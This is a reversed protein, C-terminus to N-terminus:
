RSGGVPGAGVAPSPSSPPEGSDREVMYGRRLLRTYDASAEVSQVFAEIAATPRAGAAAAARAELEPWVTVLEIASQCVATCAGCHMCSHLLEVDKASLKAGRAGALGLGLKGRATTREDRSVLYAPCVPLCFGCNVCELAAKAVADKRARSPVVQAALMALRALAPAIWTRREFFRVLRRALRVHRAPSLRRTWRTRFDLSKGPNFLGKPDLRGKAALLEDLRRATFKRDAFPANYAGVQYLRAQHGDLGLRDLGFVLPLLALVAASGEAYLSAIVVSEGKGAANAEIALASGHRGALKEAAQAYAPAQADPVVLENGLFSQEARKGKLPYFREAWLYSGVHAPAETAGRGRVWNRLARWDDLSEVYFLAAPSGSVLGRGGASSGKAQMRAQFTHNFHRM